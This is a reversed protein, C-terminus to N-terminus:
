TALALTAGAPRGGASQSLYILAASVRRDLTESQARELGLKTFVRGVQKEVLKESRDLRRAIERNRYGMAILELVSLEPPTLRAVRDRGEIESQVILQELVAPSLTIRDAFLQVLTRFLEAPELASNRLIVTLGRSGKALLLERLAHPEVSRALLCIKPREPLDRIAQIEDLCAADAHDVLWVLAGREAGDRLTAALQEPRAYSATLSNSRELLAGIARGELPEDAVVVVEVCGRGNRVTEVARPAARIM